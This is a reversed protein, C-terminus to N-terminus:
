LYPPEAIVSTPSETRKDLASILALVRDIAPPHPLPPPPPPSSAARIPSLLLRPPAGSADLRERYRLVPSSAAPSFSIGDEESLRMLASLRPPATKRGSSPVVPSSASGRLEAIVTSIDGDGDGDGDSCNNHLEICRRFVRRAEQEKGQQEALAKGLDELVDALIREEAGCDEYQAALERLLVEAKASQKDLLCAKALLHCLAFSDAAYDNASPVTALHARGAELQRICDGYREQALLRTTSEELWRLYRAVRKGYWAAWMASLHQVALTVLCGAIFAVALAPGPNSAPAPAPAPPLLSIPALAPCDPAVAAPPCAAYADGVLQVAVEWRSRCGSM